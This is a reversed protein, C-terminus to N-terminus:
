ETGGNWEAYFEDLFARLFADRKEAELKAAATNMLGKLQLLKDYFHGITSGGSGEPDYIPRNRSGGFAFARAVGVAGMADLRDADQVCASEISTPTKGVSFSVEGIITIIREIKASEVGNETLFRRANAKTECTEPSLKHDDADHLIAALAVIEADAGEAEALRLATKYVRETHYFDHGSMEGGFLERAYALAKDALGSM